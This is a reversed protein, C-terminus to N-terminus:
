KPFCDSAKFVSHTEVVLVCMGVKRRLEEITNQLLTTERKHEIRVSQLPNDVTDLEQCFLFFDRFM